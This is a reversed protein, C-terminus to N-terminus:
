YKDITKKITEYVDESIQEISKLKDNPNICNIKIFDYLEVSELYTKESQELYEKSSEAQDPLEKRNKKLECAYEYPVHLFLVLDPRPLELFEYELKELWKYLNIRETKDQIKGGQHAFNSEVYRDLLVIYGEKLADKIVKENYKRDAAYYLSAIKPDINTAGESFWGDCIRKKGLLPGGIIRGTPCDYNPFSFKIAKIGDEQLRKLLLNAQTEKGSCDTGTIVILKGNM